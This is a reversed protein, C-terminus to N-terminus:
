PYAILGSRGSQCNHFHFALIPAQLLGGARSDRSDCCDVPGGGNVCLRRGVEVVGVGALCPHEEVVVLAVGLCPHVGVVGELFPQEVVRLEVVAKDPCDRSHGEGVM